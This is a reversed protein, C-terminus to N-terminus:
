INKSDKVNKEDFVGIIDETKIAKGNAAFLEGDNGSHAM